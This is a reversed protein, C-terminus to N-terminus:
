PHEESEAALWTRLATEPDEVDLLDLVPGDSTDVIAGAQAAIDAIREAVDPPVDVRMAKIGQRLASLALGPQDDGDLVAIFAAAPFEAAAAAIMERFVAAGLYAAAGPASRLRVLVGLEAAGGMAARVHDLTHVIVTRPIM